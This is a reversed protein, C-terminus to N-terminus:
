LTVGRQKTQQVALGAPDPPGRRRGAAPGEAHPDAPGQLGGGPDVLGDAILGAVAHRGTAALAAPEATWGSLRAELMVREVDRTEADLTERGAAPSVGAGLRSAYATPHKVNWWRVGGM